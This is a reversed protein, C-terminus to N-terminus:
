SSRINYCVRFVKNVGKDVFGTRACKNHHRFGPDFRYSRYPDRSKLDRADALEAMGAYFIPESLPARVWLRGTLLRNSWWQAIESYRYQRTLSM